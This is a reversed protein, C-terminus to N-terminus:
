DDGSRRFKDDDLNEDVLSWDPQVLTEKHIGRGRTLPITPAMPAMSVGWHRKCPTCYARVGNSGAAIRVETSGCYPCTRAADIARVKRPGSSSPLDPLDEPEEM